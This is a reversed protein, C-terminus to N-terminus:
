LARTNAELKRLPPLLPREHSAEGAGEASRAKLEQCRLILLFVWEVLTWKLVTDKSEAPFRAKPELSYFWLVM